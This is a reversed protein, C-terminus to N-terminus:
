ASALLPAAAVPRALRDHVLRVCMSGEGVASAVRKVSGSHVDGVAFVGPQSTELFFPHDGGYAALQEGSLDRGTVVFGHEDMSVFGELWDTHPDAGIFVFLGRCPLENRAGTNRDALVVAELYEDGRLEVVECCTVLEVQDRARLEDILYRSMSHELDEGRIVLKCGAATKSLFLAAQGASNGGGVIVVPDDVCLQGELQTAAYYVGAGEFRELEPVRLKRYRAGTAIIVTRGNLVAGDALDIQFHANERRIAVAETPFVLRAGLRGAQLRAREALDSGSIGAPFGLYNEIRASTSAQGGLAISDIAQTDLGESAGYLAAALGAPGGGVIVLDCMPPPTGRAGLGLMAAVEANSPNRLVTSGSIVLPTECPSVDLHRLLEEAEADDELDIWEHPMRNRTLFERLRRSDSSFSSGVLRVGGGVEILISRRALYAGVVLNSLEVDHSLVSRLADLTVKIVEGPDRVVASLYAAGGTLLGLEGLFRHPGHVALVRNEDGLGRVITVAGSEVVYFDYPRDGERILVDGTEVSLVEGAARLRERVPAPMRPFAGHVDPPEEFGTGLPEGDDRLV